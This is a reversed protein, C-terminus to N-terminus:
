EGHKPAPAETRPSAVSGALTSAGSSTSRGSPPAAARLLAAHMAPPIARAKGARNVCVHVTYGVAVEIGDGARSIGYRFRMAVRGEVSLAAGLALEDEFGVPRQYNVHAEVVPFLLGYQVEFARYSVGASRLLENAAVEFYRLYNAYYVYGMQDTDGYTVRM